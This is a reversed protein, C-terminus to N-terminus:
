GRWFPKSAENDADMRTMGMDCLDRDGLTALEYRSRVRQRWETFLKRLESWQPLRRSRVATITLNMMSM